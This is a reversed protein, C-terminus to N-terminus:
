DAPEDVSTNGAENVANAVWRFLPPGAVAAVVIAGIAVAIKIKRAKAKKIARQEAARKSAESPATKVPMLHAMPHVPEGSDSPAGDEDSEATSPACATATPLSPLVPADPGTEAPAVFTPEAAPAPPPTPTPAAGPAPLTPLAVSPEVTAPDAIPGGDLHDFADSGRQTPAPAGDLPRPPLLPASAPTPQESATPAAMPAAMGGDAVDRGEHRLTTDSM